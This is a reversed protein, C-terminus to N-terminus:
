MNLIFSNVNLNGAFVEGCVYEYMCVGVCVCEGICM